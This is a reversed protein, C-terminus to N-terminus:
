GGKKGFDIKFLIDNKLFLVQMVLLTDLRSKRSLDGSQKVSISKVM